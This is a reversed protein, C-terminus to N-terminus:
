EWIEVKTATLKEILKSEPDWTALEWLEFDQEAEKPIANKFTRIATGENKATFPPCGEKAVKDFITYLKYRM